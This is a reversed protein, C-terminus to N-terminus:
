DRVGLLEPTVGSQSGREDSTKEAVDMLRSM